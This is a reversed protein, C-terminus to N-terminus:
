GQRGLKDIVKITNCIIFKETLGQLCIYVYMRIFEILLEKNETGFLIDTSFM